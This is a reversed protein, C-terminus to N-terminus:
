IYIEVSTRLKKDEVDIAAFIRKYFSSKLILQPLEAVLHNIINRLLETITMMTIKDLRLRGM